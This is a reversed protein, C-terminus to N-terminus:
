SAAAAAAGVGAAEAGEADSASIDRLCAQHRGARKAAYLAKDAAALLDSACPGHADDKFRREAPDAWQAAANECCGIGVSVSVHQRPPSDEHYIGLADVAQLARAAMHRAGASATHPLLVIFEEGGYRAVLDAPRHCARQLARAVDRLCADGTPHGYRDNFLKFHDVDILLLSIPDGARRARLWERAHLQDFLGRNAVGTLADTTAAHRLADAQHKMRLQTLVRALVISSKFPKGIFDAAGMQLASVEFGGATHSTIFIVPVDALLAESKLSKLVDFGSMGPMEADILMLDPPAERAIRLADTGNTAFRLKGVNALILGMLQISGPDDDVLLISPTKMVSM